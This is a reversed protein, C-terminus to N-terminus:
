RKVPANPMPATVTENAAPAHLSRAVRELRANVRVNSTRPAVPSRAVGAGPPAMPRPWSAVAPAMSTVNRGVLPERISWSEMSPPSITSRSGVPAITARANGTRM